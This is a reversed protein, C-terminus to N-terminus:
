KNPPFPWGFHSNNAKSLLGFFTELVQFFETFMNKNIDPYMEGLENIVNNIESYSGLCNEIQQTFEDKMEDLYEAYNEIDEEFMKAIDGMAIVDVDSYLAKKIEPKIYSKKLVM